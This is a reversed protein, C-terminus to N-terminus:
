ITTAPTLTALSLTAVNFAAWVTLGLDEAPTHGWGDALAAVLYLGRRGAADPAAPKLEPWRRRGAALDARTPGEDTVSVVAMGTALASISLALTGGPEGSATHRCANGFLEAAVLEADDVIDTRGGLATRVLKRVHPCHVTDGPYVRLESVSSRAAPAHGTM